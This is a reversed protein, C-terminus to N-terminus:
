DQTAWIRERQSQGSWRLLLRREEGVDPVEEGSESKGWWREGIEATPLPSEWGWFHCGGAEQDATLGGAWSPGAALSRQSGPSPILM